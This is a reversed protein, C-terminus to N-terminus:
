DRRSKKLALPIADLLKELDSQRSNLPLGIRINSPNSIGMASLVHSTGTALGCAAGAGVAYGMQDLESALFEAEVSECVFTSIHPLRNQSDLVEFPRIPSVGQFAELANEFDALWQRHYNSISLDQNELAIATAALDATSPAIAQREVDSLSFEDKNNIILCTAGGGASQARLLILDGTPLDPMRGLWETADVVLFESDAALRPLDAIVGTEPNGAQTVHFDRTSESERGNTAVSVEAAALQLGLLKRFSSRSTASFSVPGRQQQQLLQVLQMVAAALNHVFLIQSTEVGLSKSVSIQASTRIASSLKGESYPASAAAFGARFAAIQASEAASNMVQGLAADLHIRSSEM